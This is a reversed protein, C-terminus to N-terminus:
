GLNGYYHRAFRSSGLGHPHHCGHPTSSSGLVRGSVSGFTNSPVMLSPSFGTPSPCPCHPAIRLVVPCTCDPPFCPPGGELALSIVRGITFSYRSPFTFLVGLPPHFLGQVGAGVLLRLSYEGKPRGPPLGSPTGKTSHDPSNIDAARAAKPLCSSTLRCRRFLRPAPAFALRFLADSNGPDSGFGPSSDM